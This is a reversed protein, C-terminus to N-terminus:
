LCKPGSLETNPFAIERTSYSILLMKVWWNGTIGSEKVRGNGDTVYLFNDGSIASYKGPLRPPCVTGSKWTM